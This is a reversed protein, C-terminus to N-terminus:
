FQASFSIVFNRGPAALGSSYPRYRQNTINEIGASISLDASIERRIKMNLTYWGPSYPNGGPDLAYIFPKTKEEENLQAFSLENCGIMYLRMELGKNQYSIALQGFAPAAHRSPSKEGTEMEEEGIQYNYRAHIGFGSPLKMELGANIGYVYASAANQIAHVKSLVGNFEVSDKGNLNFPRRVM